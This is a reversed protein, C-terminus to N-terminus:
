GVQLQVPVNGALRQCEDLMAQSSDIGTLQMGKRALPLSARGTGVGIDLVTQGVAFRDCLGVELMNNLRNTGSNEVMRGSYWAVMAPDKWADTKWQTLFQRTDM